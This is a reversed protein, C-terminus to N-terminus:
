REDRAKKKARKMNREEIKTVANTVTELTHGADGEIDSSEIDDLPVELPPVLARSEADALIPFHGNDAEDNINKICASNRQSIMTPEALVIANNTGVAIDHRQRPPTQVEDDILYSNKMGLSVRNREKDVQFM